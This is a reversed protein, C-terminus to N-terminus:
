AADKRNTDVAMFVRDYDGVFAVGGASSLVASLFPARQQFSWVRKMSKTDYASLRGM